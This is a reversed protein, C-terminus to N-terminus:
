FVVSQFYNFVNTCFKFYNDICTISNPLINWDRIGAYQFCYEDATQKHKFCTLKRCCTGRTSYSVNNFDCPVGKYNPLTNDTIFLHIHCINHFFLLSKFSIIKTLQRTWNGFTAKRDNLIIHITRELACNM